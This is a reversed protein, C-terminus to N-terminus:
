GVRNKAEVSLISGQQEKSVMTENSDHGIGCFGSRRM